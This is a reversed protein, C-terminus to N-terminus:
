FQNPILGFALTAESVDLVSFKSKILNLIINVKTM